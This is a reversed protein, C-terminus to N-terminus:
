RRRKIEEYCRRSVPVPVGLRGAEKVLYGSFTELENSGGKELDRKLSSSDGPNLHITFREMQKQYYSEGLQIDKASAVAIAEKLLESFEELREKRVRIGETDTMYYATLVNYACNFCYKKWIAKEIDEETRSDINAGKLIRDTDMIAEKERSGGAKVGIHVHAINGTQVISYDEDAYSVIYILSDLVIGRNLNKRATEGPDVGNMVPIIVTNEGVADGMSGCVEKLSYNKVCVFIYDQEGAESIDTVVKEPYATFEGLYGSHLVLGNEEISKKREGRAAVTVHSYAKALAGALYGGVGGIGIVAIREKRGSAM